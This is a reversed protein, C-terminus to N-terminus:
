KKPPAGTTASSAAKSDINNFKVKSGAEAGEVRAKGAQDLAGSAITKGQKDIV